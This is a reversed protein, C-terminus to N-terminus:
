NRALKYNAIIPGIPEAGMETNVNHCVLLGGMNITGDIQIDISNRGCYAAVVVAVVAAAAAVHHRFM